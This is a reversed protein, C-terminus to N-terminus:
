IINYNNESLFQWTGCKCYWPDTDSNAGYLIDRCHPCTAKRVEINRMRPSVTEPKDSRIGRYKVRAAGKVDGLKYNFPRM